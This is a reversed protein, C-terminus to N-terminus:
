KLAQSLPAGLIASVKQSGRLAQYFAEARQKFDDHKLTDLVWAVEADLAVSRRRWARLALFREPFGGGMSVGNRFWTEVGEPDALESVRRKMHVRVHWELRALEGPYAVGPTFYLPREEVTQFPMLQTMTPLDAFRYKEGAALCYIEEVPRWFVQAFPEIELDGQGTALGRMQLSVAGTMEPGLDFLAMGRRKRQLGCKVLVDTCDELVQRAFPTM